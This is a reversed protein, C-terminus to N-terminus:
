DGNKAEKRILSMPVVEFDEKSRGEVPSPSYGCIYSSNGWEDFEYEPDNWTGRAWASLAQRASKETKFIRPFSHSPEDFSFGRAKGWRMPLFKGTAKEQVVFCELPEIPPNAEM